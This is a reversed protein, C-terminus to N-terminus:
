VPGFTRSGAMSTKEAACAAHWRGSTTNSDSLQETSKRCVPQSNQHQTHIPVCPVCQRASFPSPSITETCTRTLYVFAGSTEADCRMGMRVNKYDSLRDSFTLCTQGIYMWIESKLDCTKTGTAPEVISLFRQIHLKDVCHHGQGVQLHM